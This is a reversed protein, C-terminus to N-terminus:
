ISTWVKFIVPRITRSTEMDDCQIYPAYIDKLKWKVRKEKWVSEDPKRDGNKTCSYHKRLNTIEVQM